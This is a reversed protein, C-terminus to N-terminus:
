AALQEEFDIADRVSREDIEFWAAVRTTSRETQFADRIVTTPIGANSLIPQGFSREPDIVVKRAKTMPWWRLVADDSSFDLGRYLHPALVERIAFQNRCLDLLRPEDNLRAIDALVTRGDTKFAQTSFPHTTELLEAARHAALRLAPWSVGYRRFADVFRVEILDRFSLALDGNSPPIDPAVVRPSWRRTGRAAYEYGRLWRRIRPAPVAALRAAEPVSYIGKGVLHFTSAV